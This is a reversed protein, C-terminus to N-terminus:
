KGLKDAYWFIAFAFVIILIIGYIINIIPSKIHNGLGGLWLFSKKEKKLGSILAAWGLAFAIFSLILSLIPNM